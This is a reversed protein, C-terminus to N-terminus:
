IGAVGILIELEGPLFYSTPHAAAAAWPKHVNNFINHTEKKFMLIAQDTSFSAQM